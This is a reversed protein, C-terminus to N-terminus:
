CTVGRFRLLLDKLWLVNSHLNSFALIQSKYTQQPSKTNLSEKLSM